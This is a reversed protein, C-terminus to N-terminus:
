VLVEAGGDKLAQIYVDEGLDKKAYWSAADITKPSDKKAEYWVRLPNDDPFNQIIDGVRAKAGNFMITMKTRSNGSGSESISKDTASPKRTSASPSKAKVPKDSVNIVVKWSAPIEKDIETDNEKVNVTSKNVFEWTLKIFADVPIELGTLLNKLDNGNKIDDIAKYISRFDALEQVSALTEKTLVSEFYARIAKPQEALNAVLDLMMNDPYFTVNRTTNVTDSVLTNQTKDEKANMLTSAFKISKIVSPISDASPFKSLFGDATSQVTSVIANIKEAKEKQEKIETAKKLLSEPTKGSLLLQLDADSLTIAGLSVNSNQVNESM